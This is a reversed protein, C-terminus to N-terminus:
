QANKINLNNEMAFDQAEKLTFSQVRTTDQGQLPLTFLISGLLILLLNATNKM